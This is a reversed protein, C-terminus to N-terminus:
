RDAAADPNVPSRLLSLSMVNGKCAHGYKCDNLLSVGFEFESLDAWRHGCVEFKAVDWSTNRHTPRRAVGFPVEYSAADSLINLPFYVKLFQHNEHREVTNDFVLAPQLRACRM